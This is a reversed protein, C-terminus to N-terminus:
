SNEDLRKRVITLASDDPNPAIKFGLARCMDLMPQNEYLVDGFLEGIGAQRAAEILRTMLAYGVGRAKWDTRVAIAYEARLRDPDAFYRAVGLTTRDHQALLAMERDYDIQSMRAAFSHSLERMPAFFRLRIDESSMHAFLDQLLPEDEPRVPRLTISTGDRTVGVSELHKPYPAIALRAAGMTEAGAIRIRADVAVVSDADALLPNIDLEQIEPHDAAMQGLRILVEAIADIAAAPKGRYAQLLRWVRTHEMQWRALPLNLPPLAIASDNVIEVATGGQGFVVVPGFVADESLGALLEVAGPREIMQQVLVGDIRAEPCGIRVRRLMAETAERVAAKDRLGLAVGGADSKHTIQPSRIKLAVPFGIEGAIAAAEDATAANRSLPQPIGYASLVIAVDEADLWSKGTKIAEAMLTRVAKTDPEFPDPRAPPTELLLTQNQQYRVRHLFASVAAEPTDYSPIGASEFRRRAPAAMHEGLWATFINRGRLTAPPLAALTDIVAQAATDPDALATPCNLVLLGDVGHDAVLAQIAAAYRTGPADGIIDVPNGHSWTPPLVQDLRAITDPALEALRGGAAALADTALVGAGGGNSVIALRDGTQERTLALTEAADFLEAMTGVRLMGARAFAADYVADSGALAGTHSHAAKAGAASHGAKLVLVPKARAAARAASMFKRGHTIGEVYLLIAQTHADAALFDLMDGFDVDAMDGLSVVHSFGIKRPAAWDLMATIMAGSQSVFAVEGPPPALHSFSADLGIGPVMVGVCNPGVLRLLYPRAADLTAQQLAKGNEGLEGFGATIVIAAKTGREGLEAILRPVTDPPTAIVALDPSQPLSAVDPYVRMGDLERHHPSVLMLAGHFGARQLNRMVVSGVSGARDTAGILAVSAPAFLQDLNRVSM